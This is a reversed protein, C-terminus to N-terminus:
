GAKEGIIMLGCADVLSRFARLQSAEHDACPNAVAFPSFTSWRTPLAYYMPLFAVASVHSTEISGSKFISEVIFSAQGSDIAAETRVVVIGPRNRPLQKVADHLLPRMARRLEATLRSGQFTTHSYPLELKSRFKFRGLHPLDIDSKGQGLRQLLLEKAKALLGLLVARDVEPGAGFLEVLEPDLVVEVHLDAHCGGLERLMQDVDIGLQTSLASMMQSSMSQRLIKIEFFVEEDAVRAIFDSERGTELKPRFAIGHGADRMAAAISLEVRASEFADADRLDHRLSRYGASSQVSLLDRGLAVIQHLPMLGRMGLTYFIPHEQTALVWKDNFVRGTADIYSEIEQPSFQGNFADTYECERWWRRERWGVLEARWYEIRLQRLDSESVM